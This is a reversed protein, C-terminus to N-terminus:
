FILLFFLIYFFSGLKWGGSLWLSLRATIGSRLIQTFHFWVQCSFKNEVFVCERERPLVLTLASRKTAVRTSGQWFMHGSALWNPSLVAALRAFVHSPDLCRGQGCDVVSNQGVRDGTYGLSFFISVHLLDMNNELRRTLFFVFIIWYVTCL